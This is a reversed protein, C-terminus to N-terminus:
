FDVARGAKEWDGNYELNESIVILDNTHGRYYLRYDEEWHPAVNISETLKKGKESFNRTINGSGEEWCPVSFAKTDGDKKGQNKANARGEDCLNLNADKHGQGIEKSDSQNKSFLTGNGESPSVENTTEDVNDDSVEVPEPVKKTTM